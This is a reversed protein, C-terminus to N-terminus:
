SDTSFVYGDNGSIGFMEQLYQKALDEFRKYKFPAMVRIDCQTGVVRGSEDKIQSYVYFPSLGMRKLIENAREKKEESIFDKHKSGKIEPYPIERGGFPLIRSSSTPLQKSWVPVVCRVVDDLNECEFYGDNNKGSIVIWRESKLPESIYRWAETLSSPESAFCQSSLFLAVLFIFIRM